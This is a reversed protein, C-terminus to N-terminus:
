AKKPNESSKASPKGPTAAKMDAKAAFGERRYPSLIQVGLLVVLFIVFLGLLSSKFSKSAM